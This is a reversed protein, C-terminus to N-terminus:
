INQYILNFFINRSTYRINATSRTDIMKKFCDNFLVISLNINKNTPREKHCNVSLNSLSSKRNWENFIDNLCSKEDSSGVFLTVYDPNIFPSYFYFNNNMITFPTM